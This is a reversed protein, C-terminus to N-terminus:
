YPTIGHEMMNQSWPPLEPEDTFKVVMVGDIIRVSNKEPFVRMEKFEGSNVIHYYQYDECFYFHHGLFINYFKKWTGQQGHYTGHFISSRLSNNIAFDYLDLTKVFNSDSVVGAFMVPMEPNYEEFIEMKELVRNAINKAQSYSLELTQYTVICCMIYTFLILSSIISIGWNLLNSIIDKEVILEFITFMFPFMLMMQTSTLYYIDNGPALIIVLNLAIPLLIIILCSLIYNKFFEKKNDKNKIKRICIVLMCLAFLVFFFLYMKDRKWSRNLIIGDAFFYKIFSIYATKISPILTAFITSISIHSLGGYGAMEIGSISLIIKTLLWYLIASLIVILANIIIIRLIEVASYKQELLDKVSVILILGITIGMYSQYISLTLIFCIISLTIGLKKSKIKYLSYVSFISFLMAFIYVDATYVYLLTMCLGPSAVVTLITFFEFIKNKIELLEIILINIFSMIFISILTTVFPLAINNRLSDFINIGWRGLATEYSGATYHVGMFLGDQSMILNSLLLFHTIIGFVFTLLIIKKREKTFYKKLKDVVFEPSKLKTNMSTEENM